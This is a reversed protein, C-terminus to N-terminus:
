NYYDYSTVIAARELLVYEAAFNKCRCRSERIENEIKLSTLQEISWRKHCNARLNVATTILRVYVILVNM